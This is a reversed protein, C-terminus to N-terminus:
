KDRMLTVGMLGIVVENTTASLRLQKLEKAPDLPLDLVTAAGGNIGFDTYGRIITYQTTDGATTGTKLLLRPPKPVDIRFAYGDTYYDQEIPWWTEPNRLSLEEGTGDAYEISIKGNELRTQMPNTSGATLFYAHCATGSLPISAEHPYNDWRSTFVINKTGPTGPTLFPINQPLVIRDQSGAATRLGSDDINVELLPYCWNGVGHKPLQLTPYPSRPSLYENKFIQTVRDNFIGSLDITEYECSGKNKIMWNVIAGRFILGDNKELIVTNSGTVLYQHPVTFERSIGGAPVGTVVKWNKMGPNVIITGSIKKQTNNRVRFKLAKRDQDREAIFEVPERIVPLVPEWWIFNGQRLKIFATRSGKVGTIKGRFNKKEIRYESFIHQPDYLEIIEANRCGFAVEENIATAESVDINEPNQGAWAIGIDFVQGRGCDAELMPHDVSEIISWPVPRGNVKVEKVTTGWARVRLILRLSDNLFNSLKYNHSNQEKRFVFTLDPTTLSAYDWEDPLGPQISLIGNMADPTIGFLGEVLSRAAMGVPDAFDRYLEGRMADYFLLQGFNGPSAGLYMSEMLASKWLRFAEQPRGGQWYALSLHLLEALAVNNVSWTYPMWSTTSLVHYEDRDLGEARVPIHPIETDVYRLAQYTQFIDPIDSDIAHYVTWIGASPHLQGSGLFDKYEAYRGLSPIWLITNVAELIKDAQKRFPEPDEGTLPALEAAMRNARYNYASSYTVGGSSYQLADSAWISCYADYLGDDDADFCRKEWALHRKLVPWMEKVFGTDGTWRFHWLLQDIFVQNMDYHHCRINGGPYRSIYGSSFLATGLTEKQRALNLATDPVVPGDAPHTVQSLAYSSFHRQARDHWGLPDAAYAGRWGNLRSRWAVAGHLYSPDEWIADAAVSLAGGITNIYPDPTNVRIRRALLVRKEEAADFLGQLDNYSVSPGPDTSFVAFFHEHGGGINLRGTVAPAGNVASSFFETPSGQSTADALKIESSPPVIGTLRKLPQSLEGSAKKDGTIHKIEYLEEETPQRGSGFYLQFINKDIEYVNDACYEPKLDFSSEPDAGIDGDRQFRKGTAGGFAWLLQIDHPVDGTSVRLIMGEAEDMALVHIHLTGEGLWEDHIHYLMSGPRYRAEIQQADTLWKGTSGSILALRFCGGMGPLYLAFEPLDGAEVRFASNTGYLARNFRRTGNMIVFDSTDPQYRVTRRIDHWLAEPSGEPLPDHHCAFLFFAIVFFIIYRM